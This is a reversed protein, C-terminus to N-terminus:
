KKRNAKGKHEFTITPVVSMVTLSSCNFFYSQIFVTLSEVVSVSYSIYVQQLCHLIIWIGKCINNDYDNYLIQAVYEAPCDCPFDIITTTMHM